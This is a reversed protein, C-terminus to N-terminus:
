EAETRLKAFTTLHAKKLIRLFLTTVLKNGSVEIQEILKTREKERSFTFDIRLSVGTKVESLYQIHKRKEIEKVTQM